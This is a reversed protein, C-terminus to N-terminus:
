FDEKMAQEFTPIRNKFTSLMYHLFDNNQSIKKRLEDQSSFKNTLSEMVIFGPCDDKYAIKFAFYTRAKMSFRKITDETYGFEDKQYKKYSKFDRIPDALGTCYFYGEEWAKGIVGENIKYKSRGLNGLEGNKSYRQM